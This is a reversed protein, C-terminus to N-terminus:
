VQTDRMEKLTEKRRKHVQTNRRKEKLETNTTQIQRDKAMDKYTLHRETERRHSDKREWMHKKEMM